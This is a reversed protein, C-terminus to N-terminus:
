QKILNQNTEITTTGGCECEALRADYDHGCTPCKTWIEHNHM